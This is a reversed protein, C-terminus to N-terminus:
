RIMEKRIIREAVIFADRRSDIKGLEQEEKVKKLIKGILPSPQLNFRKMIDFGDVLKKLPKREKEKFYVDVLNLMIREHRRRKKSDTLPGRTARWDALSLIIVAVGYDQTDRFFRYVARASPYNQDALYGPRLHWFILKKLIEREKVALKLREAVEEVLNAGIKEHTHFITKKKLRRKAFPKGVDHILAALKMLHILRHRGAVPRMFYEYMKHDKSIRKWLRELRLLTELAHGWVDLHHYGGQKVGRQQKIYPIVEDIIFLDSMKKVAPYCRQAAFIKFLEENIREPSVSPLMKRYKFLLRETKKEIRFGYNALFSFARLIRLPDEKLVQECPVRIIGKKLDGGAGLLDLVEPKRATIDLVLTNITFDRLLLDEKLTGGRLQTFDYTYLRKGRKLIVRYSRQHEDLVILKSNILTAFERAFSPTHESVCFDFDTLEKDRKLFIDRLFGGVLYVEVGRDRALSRLRSLYPIHGTLTRRRM